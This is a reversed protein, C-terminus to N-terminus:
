KNLFIAVQSHRNGFVEKGISLAEEYYRLAEDKKGLSDYVM